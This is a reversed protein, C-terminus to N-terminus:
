LSPVNDTEMTMDYANRMATEFSAIRNLVQLKGQVLYLDKDSTLDEIRYTSISDTIESIFQKWGPTLFLDFYSEYYLEEEKTM